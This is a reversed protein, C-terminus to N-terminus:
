QYAPTVGIEVSTVFTANAISGGAVLPATFLGNGTSPTSGTSVTLSGVGALNTIQAATVAPLQNLISSPVTIGGAGATTYCIFTAGTQFDNTITTATGAVAVIDSSNGGTWNITLGASRNVTSPLGGTVTLPAGLILSVSFPGVGTGGDANLTYTGPVIIGNVSSGPGNVGLEYTNGSEPITVNTLDSGSPGSLGIRGADLNTSTSPIVTPQTTPTIQVVTCSGSTTVTSVPAPIGALEFGSYQTFAGGAQTLVFSMGNANENEQLLSFGGVDFTGGNDFSQLQSTTYGPQVCATAGPTAISLFTPKSMVGNESIQFPVVCGTAVNAPLTFDIQDAGAFNPASGAYAPTISIGGVIVQINAGNAAYNYVPAGMNDAFPVAGFGTAWATLTEGPHAPSITFGAVTGTTFRDLDLETASIYNQAVALGDGSEDATLLGPKQAVVSVSFPSSTSGNNTVTVNYFGVALTSPLVAALQNVGGENYLYDIFALTPNGGLAPTFTITVGGITTPLPFPPQTTPGAASLGTGKVVFVSGQAINPTYSGADEVATITPANSSAGFTDYMLTISGTSVATVLVKAWNGGNTNVWFMEGVPLAAGIIPNKSFASASSQVEMLTTANFQAVTVSSALFVTASGQPTIQSTVANGTFLIDGGGSSTVGTDLSLATGSPLTVTGNLDALAAAPLALAAVALLTGSFGNRM